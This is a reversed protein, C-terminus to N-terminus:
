GYIAVPILFMSMQIIWHVSIIDNMVYGIVGGTILGGPWGAHLINLYHTKEKPFLAAVMPNVVVECTGNAISFMVMAVTLSYYVGTTGYAEFIPDTCLQLAASLVHMVIAFIMLTGYGIRDALMCGVIIVLGFGWLGGGSIDGLEKQTFGYERAWSLLIGGRVGFGVGAAFISFFGAWLLRKANPVTGNSM